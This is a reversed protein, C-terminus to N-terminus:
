NTDRVGFETQSELFHIKVQISPMPPVGPNPNQTILLLDHENMSPLIRDGLYQSTYDMPLSCHEPVFSATAHPRLMGLLDSQFGDTSDILHLTFIGTGFALSVTSIPSYVSEDIELNLTLGARALGAAALFLIVVIRKLM